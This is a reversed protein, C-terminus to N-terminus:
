LSSLFRSTFLIRGRITKHSDFSCLFINSFTRVKFSRAGSISLDVMTELSRIFQLTLLPFFYIACFFPWRGYVGLDVYMHGTSWLLRRPLSKGMCELVQSSSCYLNEWVFLKTSVVKFICTYHENQVFNNALM